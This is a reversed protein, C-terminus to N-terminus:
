RTSWIKLTIKQYLYLVFVCISFHGRGGLNRVVKPKPRGTNEVLIAVINAALTICRLCKGLPPMWRNRTFGKIHKMPCDRSQVLADGLHDFNGAIEQM